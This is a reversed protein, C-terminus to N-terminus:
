LMCKDIRKDIASNYKGSNKKIEDVLLKGQEAISKIENHELKQKLLAHILRNRDEKWTIISDLLENSFYKNLLDKRNSDKVKRIYDVKSNLTPDYRGRKKLYPEWKGAHRLVSETRDEIIAYEIFLAELYFGKNMASNMRKSQEKYNEYKIQNATKEM